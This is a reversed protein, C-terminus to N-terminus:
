AELSRSLGVLYKLTSIDPVDLEEILYNPSVLSSENGGIIYLQNVQCKELIDITIDKLLAIRCVFDPSCSKSNIFSDAVFTNGVLGSNVPRQYKYM